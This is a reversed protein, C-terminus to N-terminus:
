YWKFGDGPFMNVMVNKVRTQALVGEKGLELGLGSAKYGAYPANPFVFNHLNLWITGAEIRRSLTHAAKLDTTWISAALGYETDNAQAVMDEIGSAKSIVVVPGFIEEKWITMSPTVDAFVTAEMFNGKGLPGDKLVHGGCVMRAGDKKGSEVYAMVSKLQDAHVMPGMRTDKDRPLGVKIAKSAAAFREVFEDYVAEDVIMRTAACCCEGQNLYAGFLTGNITEALNCDALVLAPSKGGLELTCGKMGATCARYLGQGVATSGTFTIDKIGSAETLAKGAVGGEASVINVVGPPLGAETCIEGLMLTSLPTWSSPKIVITNGAALASGVKRAAILFPFNWPIIAGVVGVPERLTYDLVENYPSVKVDGTIEVCVDAFYHFTAAAGPIDVNASEFIPKGVDDTELEALFGAHKEIVEAIKHLLRAREFPNTARWTQTFAKHASDVAARLDAETAKQVRTILENTAPNLVPITGGDSSDVWEGGIYLKNQIRVASGGEHRRRIAQSM